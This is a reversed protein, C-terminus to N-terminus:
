QIDIVVRPNIPDPPMLIHHIERVYQQSDNKLIGIMVMADLVFKAGASINDLDRKRNKEYWLFSLSVPSSFVGDKKGLLFNACYNTWEKKQTAGDFRNSRNEKIIENLGPLPGPITFRRFM